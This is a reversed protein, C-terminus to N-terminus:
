IPNIELLKDILSIVIEDIVHKVKVVECDDKIHDKLFKMYINSYEDKLKLVLTMCKDYQEESLRKLTHYEKVTQILEEETM